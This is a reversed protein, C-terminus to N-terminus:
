RGQSPMRVRYACRRAGALIHDTRDIEVDPGLVRRFVELESACLGSCAKAATCIPCHNEIFLWVGDTEPEVEAMYGEASRRKALRRLRAPLSTAGDLAAAYDAVQQETRVLLLRDLGDAGFAQRMAQLLGTTLEAHGDPFFREAADTLRWLKAPRGVPRRVPQHTVLGEEQLEYLHQRVAMPTIGIHEALVAAEQAGAQKLLDLVARRTRYTKTKASDHETM